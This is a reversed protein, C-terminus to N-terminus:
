EKAEADEDMEDIVSGESDSDSSSDSSDDDGSGNDAPTGQDEEEVREGEDRELRNKKTDSEGDRENENSSSSNNNNNSNSDTIAKRKKNYKKKDGAAAIDRLVYNKESKLFNSLINRTPLTVMPAFTTFKFQPTYTRTAPMAETTTTTITTTETTDTIVPTASTAPTESSEMPQKIDPDTSNTAPITDESTPKDETIEKSTELPTAGENDADAVVILPVLPASVSESAEASTLEISSEPVSKNVDSTTTSAEEQTVATESAPEEQEQSDETGPVPDVDMTMDEATKETNASVAKHESQSESKELTANTDAKTENMPALTDSAIAGENNPPLTASATEAVSAHASTDIEISPQTDPQAQQEANDGAEEMNIDTDDM